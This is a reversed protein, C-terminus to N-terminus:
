PAPFTGDVFVLPAGDKHAAEIVEGIILTHDGGDHAAHKICEFVAISGGILPVGAANLTMDLGDFGHKSKSFAEAIHRQDGALVHVNFAEAALFANYRASAKAPSWLILPPDLSLSTFSNATIGIPVGDERATIITVGTAYRGLATRFARANHKPSFSTM